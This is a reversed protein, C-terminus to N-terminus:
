KKLIKEFFGKNDSIKKQLRLKQCFNTGMFFLTLLSYMYAIPIYLEYINITTLIKMCFRFCGSTVKIEERWFDVDWIGYGWLMNGNTVFFIFSAMVPFYEIKVHEGM